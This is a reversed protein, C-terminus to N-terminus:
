VGKKLTSGRQKVNKMINFQLSKINVGRKKNTIDSTIHITVFWSSFRAPSGNQTSEARKNTIDSTIKM